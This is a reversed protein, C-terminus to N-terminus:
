EGGRSAGTRPHPSTPEHQDGIYGAFPGGHPCQHTQKHIHCSTCVACRGTYFEHPHDIFNPAESSRRALRNNAM